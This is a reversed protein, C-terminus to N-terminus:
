AGSRIAMSSVKVLLAVSSEPSILTILIDIFLEIIYRGIIYCPLSVLDVSLYLM